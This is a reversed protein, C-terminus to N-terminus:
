AHAEMDKQRAYRPPALRLEHHELAPALNHQLTSGSRNMDNAIVLM